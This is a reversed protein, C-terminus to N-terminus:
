RGIEYADKPETDGSEIKILPKAAGSAVDGAQAGLAARGSTIDTAPVQILASIEIMIHLMSRTMIDIEDDRGSYGGYYVKFERQGPNLHLISSIEKSKAAIEPNATSSFRLLTSEPGDKATVIRVQVANALQLDRLLQTLRLFQPDVARNTSRMSGNSVGNISDVGMAMVLDANYGSQLLSMLSSPPIPTMLKKLFDNGTLPAYVITPRDTYTGQALATGGITFPSVMAGSAGTASLDAGVTSQLQYGAIVQAVDLYVPFDGYRIKVINLLTQQKWSDAIASGYDMRDREVTAPGIHTCAALASMLFAGALLRAIRRPVVIPGQVRMSNRSDNRM